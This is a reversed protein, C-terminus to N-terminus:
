AKRLLKSMEYWLLDIRNMTAPLDTDLESKAKKVIGQLEEIVKKNEDTATAKAKEFAESILDLENKVIGINKYQLDGRVKLIYGRINAMTSDFMIKQTIARTEKNIKDIAESQKKFAEEITTKQKEITEDTMALDKKFSDEFAKLEHYIANVTKIVEQVNADPQLPAVKSEEEIKQLRQKIDQIESGLGATEKKILIPLGLYGAGIIAVILIITILVTKM